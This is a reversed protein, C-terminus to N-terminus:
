TEKASLVEVTEVLASVDGRLKNIEHLLYRLVPNMEIEIAIDRPRMYLPKTPIKAIDEQTVIVKDCM